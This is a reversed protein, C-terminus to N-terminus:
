LGGSPITVGRLTMTVGAFAPTWLRRCLAEHGQIGAKSTTLFNVIAQIPTTRGKLRGSRPRRLIRFKRLTM